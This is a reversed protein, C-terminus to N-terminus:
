SLIYRFKQLAQIKLPCHPLFKSEQPLLSRHESQIIHQCNGLQVSIYFTDKVAIEAELVEQEPSFNGIKGIMVSATM